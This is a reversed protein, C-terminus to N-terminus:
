ENILQLTNESIKITNDHSSLDNIKNTLHDIINCALLIKEPDNNMNHIYILVNNNNIDIQFNNKLTIGTKQSMMIGSYNQQETDYIFKEVEKKSVNM